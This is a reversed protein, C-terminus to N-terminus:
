LPYPLYARIGQVVAEFHDKRHEYVDVPIECRDYAPNLHKGGKPTTKQHSHLAYLDALRSVSRRLSIDNTM